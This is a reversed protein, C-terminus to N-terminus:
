IFSTTAQNNPWASQYPIPPKRLTPHHILNYNETTPWAQFRSFAFCEVSRTALEPALDEALNWAGGPPEGRLPTGHAAPGWSGLRYAAPFPNDMWEILCMQHMWTGEPVFVHYGEKEEPRMKFGRSSAITVLHDSLLAARIARVSHLEDVHFALHPLALARADAPPLPM